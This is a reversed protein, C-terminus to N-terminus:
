PAGFSRKENPPAIKSFGPLPRPKDEGEILLYGTDASLGSYRATSGSPWTIGVSDIGGIQGMGFHLRSDSASQYSGGASAIPWWGGAGPSSSLRRGWPTAIRGAARSVCRSFDAGKPETTFTPWPSTTRFFSCM